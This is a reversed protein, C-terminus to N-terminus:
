KLQYYAAGTAIILYLALWLFTFLRGGSMLLFLTIPTVGAIISGAVIHPLWRGRRRGVLRWVLRGILSGVIAAVFIVFFGLLHVFSGALLGLTLSVATAVVYDLTTATYFVDERERICQPCRYGVPTLRACRSCIPRGCKSCRLNTERRPHNDCYLPGHDTSGAATAQTLEAKDVQGDVSPSRTADDNDAPEIAAEPLRKDRYADDNPQGIIEQRGAEERDEVEEVVAEDSDGRELRALAEQAAQNDPDLALAQRYAAEKEAPDSLLEAVGLWAQLLQPEEQLIEQYLRLAVARKGGQAAREAQRLIARIRPTSM